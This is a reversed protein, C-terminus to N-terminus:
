VRECKSKSAANYRDQTLTVFRKAKLEEATPKLVWLGRKVKSNSVARSLLDIKFDNVM